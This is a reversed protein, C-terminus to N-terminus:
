VDRQTCHSREQCRGTENSSMKLKMKPTLGQPQLGTPPQHLSHHHQPAESSKEGVSRENQEQLLRQLTRRGAQVSTWAGPRRWPLVLNEGPFSQMIRGTSSVRLVLLFALTLRM